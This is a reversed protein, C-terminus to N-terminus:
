IGAIAAIFGFFFGIIYSLIGLGITVFLWTRAKNKADIAEEYSGNAWLSNAKNAYIISVIGTPLCCLLTAIISYALYNTPEGEKAPRQAHPPPPPTASLHSKFEDVQSIPLWQPM